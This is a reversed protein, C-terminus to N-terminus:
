QFAGGEIFVTVWAWSFKRMDPHVVCNGVEMDKSLQERQRSYGGERKWQRSGM